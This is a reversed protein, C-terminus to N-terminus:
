WPKCAWERWTSGDREFIEHAAAVNAQANFPSFWARSTRAWTGPIIQFVGSASSYPNYARPNYGSECNAVRLAQYAYNGFTINISAVVETNYTSYTYSGHWQHYTHYTYTHPNYAATNAHAQPAHTFATTLLLTLLIILVVVHRKVITPYSKM